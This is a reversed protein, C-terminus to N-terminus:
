LFQFPAPQQSVTGVPFSQELPKLLPRDNEVTSKVWCGVAQVDAIQHRQQCQAPKLTGTM